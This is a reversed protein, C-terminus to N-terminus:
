PQSIPRLQGYEPLVQERAPNPLYKEQRYKNIRILYNEIGKRDHDIQEATITSEKLLPLNEQLQTWLSNPSAPHIPKLHHPCIGAMGKVDFTVCAVVYYIRDPLLDADLMAVSAETWSFVHRGPECEYDCYSARPLRGILRDGEHLNITFDVMVPFTVPRVFVVKAKGSSPMSIQLARCDAAPWKKKVENPKIPFMAALDVKKETSACGATLFLTALSASISLVYRLTIV